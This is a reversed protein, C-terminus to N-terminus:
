GDGHMGGMADTSSQFLQNLPAVARVEKVLIGNIYSEFDTCSLPPSILFGQAQDCRFKRLLNIQEPDSVGEAVVSMGLSHALGIIAQCIMQDDLDQHCDQVFARDIKVATARLKKLYSMSSYGTGFDDVAISIGRERLANLSRIVGDEDQVLVGETIEIELASPDLGSHALAEDVADLVQDHRFQIPSLNIAVKLMDLGKDRWRKADECAKALVWRGIPVIYRSNEAIPIFEAPSIYGKEPHTWRILAEMGIIQNNDLSIKPQYHVKFQDNKIADKLLSKTEAIKVVHKEITTTFFKYRGKGENKAQYMALDANRMLIEPDNGDAPCVSIGISAGVQAQVGDVAIPESISAILREGLSGLAAYRSEPDANKTLDQLLVFEDGGLRAAMDGKRACDKIRNAVERLVADGVQHGHTDNVDKFGDIDILVVAFCNEGRDIKKALQEIQAAFIKRNSLGTLTDHNALYIAKEESEKRARVEEALNDHAVRLKDALQKNKAFLRNTASLREMCERLLLTTFSLGFAPNKELHALFAAKPFILVSTEEAATLTVAPADDRILSGEGFYAHPEFVRITQGDQDIRVKGDTVITLGEPPRDPGILVDGIQYTRFISVEAVAKADEASVSPFALQIVRGTLGPDIAQNTASEAACATKALNHPM